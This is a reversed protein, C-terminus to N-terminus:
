GIIALVDGKRVSDRPGFNVAKVAGDVPSPITNHIKMSELIVVADGTKIRDGVEVEYRVIIGPMPAVIPVGDTSMM